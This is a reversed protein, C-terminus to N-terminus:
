KAALTKCAAEYTAAHEMTYRNAGRGSGCHVTAEGVKHWSDFFISTQGIAETEYVLTDETETHYKILKQVDNAAVEKKLEEVTIWDPHIQVHFDKGDGLKVELTGFSEKFESGEPANMTAKFDEYVIDIPVMAVKAKAPQSKAPQSKAVAGESKTENSEATDKKGCAAVLLISLVVIKSRTM